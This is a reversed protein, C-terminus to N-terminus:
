SPLKKIFEELEPHDFKMMKNKTYYQAYIMCFTEETTDELGKKDESKDKVKKYLNAWEKILKPTMIYKYVAHAIEHLVTFERSHVWPAAVTIKKKKEDIVGVHGGDGKLTNDKECEFSYDKVLKSHSAPIKKLTTQVDRLFSKNESFTKFDLEM